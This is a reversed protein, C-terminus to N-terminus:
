AGIQMPLEAAIVDRKRIAVDRGGGDPERTALIEVASANNSIAVALPQFQDQKLLCINHLICCTIIYKPILDERTMPLTDLLRRMRGKLLGFAREIAMRTSSHCMNFNKQIDTLHGNDKFPVMLHKHLKYAADGLIHVDDPFQTDNRFFEPLDSNQFVRQDHVAGPYGTFCHIFMGNENCVAQLFYSGVQLQMSHYGKRNVYAEANNKPATISIHTGDIAGIVNPFGKVARFVRISTEMEDAIPWKIFTHVHDNVVRRVSIVATAKGVNFRDSVSRYSDPTGLIWLTLLLQTEPSVSPRGPKVVNESIKPGILSLIFDFTKRQMRFHSQFQDDSYLHVVNEVYHEIRTLRTSDSVNMLHTLVLFEDDDSSSDDLISLINNVILPVISESDMTAILCYVCYLIISTLYTDTTLLM